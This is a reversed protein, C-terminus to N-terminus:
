SSRPRACIGGGGSQPPFMNAYEAECVSNAHPPIFNGGTAPAGVVLTASAPPCALFPAALVAAAVTHKRKLLM